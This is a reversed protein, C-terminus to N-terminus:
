VVIQGDPTNETASKAPTGKANKGSVGSVRGDQFGMSGMKAGRGGDRCVQGIVNGQSANGTGKGM